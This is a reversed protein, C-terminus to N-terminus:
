RVHVVKVREALYRTLGIRCRCDARGCMGDGSAPLESLLVELICPEGQRCLRITAAPSLGMARLMATDRPDMCTECVDAVQGPRLSALPVGNPSTTTGAVAPSHESDAPM